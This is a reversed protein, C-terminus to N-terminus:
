ARIDAKFEEFPLLKPHIGQLARLEVQRVIDLCERDGAMNCVAKVQRIEDCLYGPYQAAELGLLIPEAPCRQVLEIAAEQLEDRKEDAMSICWQHSEDTEEYIRQCVSQIDEIVDASSLRNYSKWSCPDEKVKAVAYEVEYALHEADATLRGYKVTKREARREREYDGDEEEEARGQCDEVAEMAGARTWPSNWVATRPEYEKLEQIQEHVGKFAIDICHEPLLDIDKMQSILLALEFIDEESASKIECKTSLTGRHGSCSGGKKGVFAVVGDQRAQWAADGSEVYEMEVDYGRETPEFKVKNAHSAAAGPKHEVTDGPEFVVGRKQGLRLTGECYRLVGTNISRLDKADYALDCGCYEGKAQVLSMGARHILNALKNIDQTIAEQGREPTMVYWIKSGIRTEDAIWSKLETQHLAKKLDELHNSGPDLAELSAVAQHGLEVIADYLNKQLFANEENSRKTQQLDFWKAHIDDKIKILTGGSASM